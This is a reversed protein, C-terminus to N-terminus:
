AEANKSKRQSTPSDEEESSVDVAGLLLAAVLAVAEAPVATNDDVVDIQEPAFAIM